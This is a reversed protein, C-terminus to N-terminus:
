NGRKPPIGRKPPFDASTVPLKVSEPPVKCIVCFRRLIGCSKEIEPLIEVSEAPLKPKGASFESKGRSDQIKRFFRVIKRRFRGIEPLFRESKRLINPSEASDLFKRCFGGLKGRFKSNKQLIKQNEASIKPSGAPFEWNGASDKCKRYSRKIEQPVRQLNQPIKLTGAFDTKETSYLDRLDPRHGSNQTLSSEPPVGRIVPELDDAEIFFPLDVHPLLDVADDRVQHVRHVGSVHHPRDVAQVGFTETM